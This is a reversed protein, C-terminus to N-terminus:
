GIEKRGFVTRLLENGSLDITLEESSFLNHFLSNSTLFSKSVFKDLVQEMIKVRNKNGGVSSRRREEQM